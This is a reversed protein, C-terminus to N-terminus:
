QAQYIKKQQIAVQELGKGIGDNKSKMRLEYLPLYRDTVEQLPELLPRLEPLNPRKLSIM